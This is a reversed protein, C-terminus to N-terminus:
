APAGPRRDFDGRRRQMRDIGQVRLEIGDNGQIPLIREAIDLADSSRQRWLLGIPGTSPTGVTIL